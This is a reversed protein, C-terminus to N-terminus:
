QALSPLRSYIDDRYEHLGIGFCKLLIKPKGFFTQPFFITGLYFSIKNELYGMRTTSTKQKQNIEKSADQGVM